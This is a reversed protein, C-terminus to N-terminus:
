VNKQQAVFNWRILYSIRYNTASGQTLPPVEVDNEPADPYVSVLESRFMSITEGNATAQLLFCRTLLCAHAAKGPLFYLHYEM